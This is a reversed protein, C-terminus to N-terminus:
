TIHILWISGNSYLTAFVPVLVDNESMNFNDLTILKINPNASANVVVVTSGKHSYASPLTCEQLIGSKNEFTYIGSQHISFKVDQIGDFTALHIGGSAILPNFMHLPQGSLGSIENTVIGNRFAGTGAVSLNGNGFIDKEMERTKVHESHHRQQQQLTTCKQNLQEIENQMRRTAVWLVMFIIVILLMLELLFQLWSKDSTSQIPPSVYPNEYTGPM